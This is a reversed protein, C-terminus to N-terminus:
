RYTVHAPEGLHAVDNFGMASFDGARWSFGDSRWAFESISANRIVRGTAMTRGDHFGLALRLAVAIVGGSTVAAVRAGGRHRAVIAEIARRVRQGFAEFSEVGEAHLEGRAWGGIIREFAADMLRAADAPGARGSALAALQPDEGALRPLLARLLEFAPYETLEDLLEPEPLARGAEAAAERLHLATDRQRVLPGVYLADLPAAHLPATALATGLARAQHVGLPSLRDYDGAGYSAQGHRILLLTSM